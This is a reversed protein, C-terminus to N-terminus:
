IQLIIGPNFNLTVCACVCRPHATSIPVPEHLEGQLTYLLTSCPQSMHIEAARQQLHFSFSVAQIKFTKNMRRKKASVKRSGTEEEGVM